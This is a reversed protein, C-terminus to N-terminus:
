GREAVYSSVKTICSASYARASPVQAVGLFLLILTTLYSPDGPARTYTLFIKESM